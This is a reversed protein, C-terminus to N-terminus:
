RVQRGCGLQMMLICAVCAFYVWVQAVCDLCRVQVNGWWAAHCLDVANAVICAVFLGFVAGACQGTVSTSWAGTVLCVM